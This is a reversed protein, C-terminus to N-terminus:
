IHRANWANVCECKFAYLRPKPILSWTGQVIEMSPKINENNDTFCQCDTEDQWIRDKYYVTVTDEMESVLLM